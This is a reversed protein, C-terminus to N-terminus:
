KLAEVQKQARAKDKPKGLETYLNVLQEWIKIDKADVAVAKEYAEASKAFEKTQIYADGLYRWYDKENPNAEAAATFSVIADNWNKRFYSYTAYLFNIQENKPEIKLVDKYYVMFSDIAIERKQVWSEVNTEDKLDSYYRVSDQATQSEQRFYNGVSILADVNASDAAIIRKNVAFSSDYMKQSNYCIALNTMTMLDDPALDVYERMYPIAGGYDGLKIYDYAITQLLQVRDDSKDLGKVLWDIAGQYDEIKEHLAGLGVYPEIKTPDLTLCIEFSVVASDVKAALSQKFTEIVASDTENAIEEQLPVVENNMLNIGENYFIRWYNVILSDNKEILEDCDKKYKKDIAKNDKDCCMHLSDVYAILTAVHEKKKELTEAKDIYDVEISGRLQIAEATPGYYMFLSDLMAIATKYREFDGSLIDIKASKIYAGMPLKRANKAQGSFPVLTIVLAAIAITKLIKM